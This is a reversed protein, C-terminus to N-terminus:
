LIATVLARMRAVVEDATLTSSDIRIADEAAKLPAIARSSDNEDRLAMDQEVEALSQTGTPGMEEFRRRARVRASAELFFKVDAEPFVVTGMDRGEFVVAKEAGMQKQIGLLFARVVPRASVASAMMAIEPTRIRDTIDAGNLILRTGQDSHIFAVSLTHCLAELGADDKASVGARIAALAVARYLAGTDVYRYNLAKALRRSVTTKGAGAPGDITILVSKM